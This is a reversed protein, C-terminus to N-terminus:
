LYEYMLYKIRYEELKYVLICLKNLTEILKVNKIYQAQLVEQGVGAIDTDPRCDL